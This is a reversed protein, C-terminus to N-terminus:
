ANCADVFAQATIGSVPVAFLLIAMFVFYLAIVAGAIYKYLAKMKDTKFGLVGILSGVLLGGVHGWADVTTQAFSSFIGFVM